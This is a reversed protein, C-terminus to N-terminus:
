AVAAKRAPKRAKRQRDKVAKHELRKRLASERSKQASDLELRDADSLDRGELYANISDVFILIRGYSGALQPRARELKGERLLKRVTNPHCKLHIKAAEAVTSVQRVSAM